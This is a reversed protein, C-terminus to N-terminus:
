KALLASRGRKRWLAFQKAKWSATGQHTQDGNTKTTQVVQLMREEYTAPVVRNCHSPVTTIPRGCMLEVPSPLHADLPTARVNLVTCQHHWWCIQPRETPDAQHLPDSAWHLWKIAPPKPQKHHTWHGLRLFIPWIQEPITTCQWVHNERTCWAYHLNKKTFKLHQVVPYRSYYDSIILFNKGDIEFSDSGLKIWTRSTTQIHGFTGTGTAAATGPMVRM